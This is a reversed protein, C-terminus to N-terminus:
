VATWLKIKGRDNLLLQGAEWSIKISINESNPARTRPLYKINPYTHTTSSHSSQLRSSISSGSDSEDSQERKIRTDDVKLHELNEVLPDVIPDEGVDINTNGSYACAQMDRISLLYYHIPSWCPYKTAICSQVAILPRQARRHTDHQGVTQYAEEGGLAATLRQCRIYPIYGRVQSGIRAGVVDTWWRFYSSWSRAFRALYSPFNTTKLHTHM